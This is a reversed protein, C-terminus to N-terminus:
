EISLESVGQAILAHNVLRKWDDSRTALAKLLKPLEISDKVEGNEVVAKVVVEMQRSSLSTHNERLFKGLKNATAWNKSVLYRQLVRDIAVQPVNGFWFGGVIADVNVSMLFANAASALPTDMLLETLDVEDDPLNGVVSLLRIKQQQNLLDWYKERAAVERVCEVLKADDAAAVVTNLEDALDATAHLPHMEIVCDLVDRARQRFKYDKQVDLAAKLLIVVFNRLLSRRPKSLPGAELYIRMEGRKSPFGSSELDKSLRELAAKGQAPQQMLVFTIANFIHLRALEAPPEFIANGLTHSPHACRNRDEGIRKLDLYEAHSILELKDKALDLLDKEFKLAAAIDGAASIKDFHEINKKAEADGAGALFRIKDILDFAIAIWTSVVASRYAGNKYCATAEKIYARSRPDPCKLILEDLDALM